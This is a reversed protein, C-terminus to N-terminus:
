QAKVEWPIVAYSGLAVTDVGEPRKLGSSHALVRKMCVLVHAALQKQWLCVSSHLMSIKVKVVQTQDRGM